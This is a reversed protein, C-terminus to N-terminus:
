TLKNVCDWRRKPSQTGSVKAEEKALSCKDIGTPSSTNRCITTLRARVNYRPQLLLTLGTIHQCHKEFTKKRKGEGGWFLTFSRTARQARDRGVPLGSKLLRLHPAQQWDSRRKLLGTPASLSPNLRASPHVEQWIPHLYRENQATFKKNREQSVLPSAREHGILPTPQIPLDPLKIHSLNLAQGTGAAQEQAM